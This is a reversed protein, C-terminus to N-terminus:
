PVLSSAPGPARPRSTTARRNGPGPYGPNPNPPGGFAGGAPAAGGGGGVDHSFNCTDGKNCKGKAFFHCPRVPRGIM